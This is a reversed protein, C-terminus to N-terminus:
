QVFNYQLQRLLNGKYELSELMKESKQWNM